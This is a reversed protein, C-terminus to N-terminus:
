WRRTSSSAKRRQNAVISRRGFHDTAEPPPAERYDVLNWGRASRLKGDKVRLFPDNRASSFCTWQRGGESAFRRRGRVSRWWRAGPSDM